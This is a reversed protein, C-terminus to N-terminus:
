LSAGGSALCCSKRRGIPGSVGPPLLLSVPRVASFGREAEVRGRYVDIVYGMAQFLYFSIGVPLVIDLVPASVDFGLGNLAQEALSLAFNVYKFLFLLVTDLTLCAALAGKGRGKALIRGTAYSTVIVAM